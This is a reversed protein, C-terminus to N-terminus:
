VTHIPGLLHPSRSHRLLSRAHGALLSLTLRVLGALFRSTVEAKSSITSREEEEEEEEKLGAVLSTARMRDRIHQHDAEVRGMQQSSNFINFINFISAALQLQRQLQLQQPPAPMTMPAILDIHTAPILFLRREVVTSRDALITRPLLYMLKAAHHHTGPMNRAVRAPHWQAPPLSLPPRPPRSQLLLHQM